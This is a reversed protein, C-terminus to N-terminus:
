EIRKRLDIYLPRLRPLVTLDPKRAQERMAMITEYPWNRQYLNVVWTPISGRPDAVAVGTARTRRGGDVPELLCYSGVLSGRVADHSAPVQYTSLSYSVRTTSDSPDVDIQVRTVFDRDKIPWPLEVRDHSVYDVAKRFWGVVRSRSRDEAWESLRAEDLLISLVIDIPADIVGVAKFSLLGSDPLDREFVRIGREDRTQKWSSDVQGGRRETGEGARNHSRQSRTEVATPATRAGASISPGM